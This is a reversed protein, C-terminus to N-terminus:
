INCISTVGNYGRGGLTPDVDLIANEIQSHGRIHRYWKRGDM